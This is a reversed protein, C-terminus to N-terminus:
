EQVGFPGQSGITPADPARQNRGTSMPPQAPTNKGQNKAKQQGGKTFLAKTIAKANNGIFNMFQDPDKIGALNFIVNPNAVNNVIGGQVPPAGKQNVPNNVPPNGPAVVPPTAKPLNMVEDKFQGVRNVLNQIELDSVGMEKAKRLNRAAKSFLSQKQKDSKNPDNMLKALNSGTNVARKRAKEQAMRRIAEQKNLFKTILVVDRLSKAQKLMADRIKEQNSVRKEESKQAKKNLDEIQEDKKQAKKAAQEAKFLEEEKKIFKAKNAITENLIKKQEATM